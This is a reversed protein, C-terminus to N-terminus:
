GGEGVFVDRGGDIDSGAGAEIVGAWVVVVLVVVAVAFDVRRITELADIAL